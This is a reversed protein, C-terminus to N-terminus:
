EDFDYYGYIMWQAMRSIIRTTRAAETSCPSLPSDPVLLLAMPLKSLEDSDGQLWPFPFASILPLLQDCCLSFTRMLFTSCSQLALRISSGRARARQGQQMEMGVASPSTM